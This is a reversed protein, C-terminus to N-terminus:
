DLWPIMRMGHMGDYMAMGPMALLPMYDEDQTDTYERGIRWRQVREPHIYGGIWPDEVTYWWQWGDRAGLELYTLGEVAFGRPTEVVRGPCLHERWYAIQHRWYNQLMQTDPEARGSAWSPPDMYAIIIIHHFYNEGVKQPGMETNEMCSEPLVGWQDGKVIHPDQAPANMGPEGQALLKFIERAGESPVQMDPRNICKKVYLAATYYVLNIGLDEDGEMMVHAHTLAAFGECAAGWAQQYTRMKGQIGLGLIDLGVGEIMEYFEPPLEKNEDQETDSFSQVSASSISAQRREELRKMGETMTNMKELLIIFEASPQPPVQPQPQPPPVQMDEPPPNPEARNFPNRPPLEINEGHEGAVDVQMGMAGEFQQPQAAMKNSIQAPPYLFM